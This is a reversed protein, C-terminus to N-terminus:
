GFSLPCRYALTIKVTIIARLDEVIISPGAVIESYITPDVWASVINLNVRVGVRPM